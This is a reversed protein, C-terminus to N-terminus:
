CQSIESTTKTKKRRHENTDIRQWIWTLRNNKYTHNARKNMKIHHIRESHCHDDSWIMGNSTYVSIDDIPIPANRKVHIKTQSLTSSLFPCEANIPNTHSSPPHYFDSKVYLSYAKIKVCISYSFTNTQTHSHSSSLSFSLFWLLILRVVFPIPAAVCLILM